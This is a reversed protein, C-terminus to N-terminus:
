AAWAEIAAYQGPVAVVVLNSGQDILLAADLSRPVRAELGEAVRRPALLDDVRAMAVRAAAEDDAALAVVLDDAGASQLADGAFGDAMLLDLNMRTGMLVAAREIGPEALLMESVRMLKVSDHYTNRHLDILTHM